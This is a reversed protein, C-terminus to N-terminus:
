RRDNSARGTAQRAEVLTARWAADNFRELEVLYPGEMFRVDLPTRKGEVLM